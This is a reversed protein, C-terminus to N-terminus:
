AQGLSLRSNRYDNSSMHRIPVKDHTVHNVHRRLLLAARCAHQSRGILSPVPQAAKLTCTCRLHDNGNLLVCQQSLALDQAGYPM